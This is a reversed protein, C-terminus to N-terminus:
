YSIEINKKLFKFNIAFGFLNKNNSSWFPSFPQLHELFIKLKLFLLDSNSSNNICDIRNVYGNTDINVFLILENGILSEYEISNDKILYSYAMKSLSDNSINIFSNNIQKGKILLTGDCQSKANLLFFFLFSFLMINNKM